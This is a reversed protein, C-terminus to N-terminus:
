GRNEIKEIYEYNDECTYYSTSSFRQGCGCKYIRIVEIIWGDEIFETTIVKLQATSGCNPCRTM